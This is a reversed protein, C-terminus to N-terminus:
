LVERWVSTSFEYHHNFSLHNPLTSPPTVRYHRASRGLLPPPPLFALCCGSLGSAGSVSKVMVTLQYIILKKESVRILFWRRLALDPSRWKRPAYRVSLWTKIQFNLRSSLLLSLSSTDLSNRVGVMFFIRPFMLLPLFHPLFSNFSQSRSLSLPNDLNSHVRQKLVLLPRIGSCHFTCTLCCSHLHFNMVDLDSHPFDCETSYLLTTVLHHQQSTNSYKQNYFSAM